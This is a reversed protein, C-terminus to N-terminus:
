GHIWNGTNAKWLHLDKQLVCLIEIRGKINNISWATWWTVAAMKVTDCTVRQQLLFHGFVSFRIAV